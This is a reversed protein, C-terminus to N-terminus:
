IHLFDGADRVGSRQGNRAPTLRLTVLGPGDFTSSSVYYACQTTADWVAMWDVTAATYRKTARVRGNTLSQSWCRVLIIQGDSTVHKVQVRELGGARDVILDYDCDEGYPFAIRYGRRRLDAAVMLEALDGKQKLPAM